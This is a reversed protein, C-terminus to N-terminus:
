IKMNKLLQLQEQIQYIDKELHSLSTLLRDCVSVIEDTQLPTDLVERLNFATEKASLATLMRLISSLSYQARRLTRIIKLINIDRSDYMRYGNQRRKVTLLGNLEWNRLTDITIGLLDATQKRTLLVSSTEAQARSLLQKTIILAEEANKQEAKVMALYDYTSEMARDYEGAASLKIIHIAQNRLGNQTVEARLALRALRIQEIHLDTIVRYGNDLRVPKPILGWEEYLRVTNPHLGVIKAVQATKYTKM